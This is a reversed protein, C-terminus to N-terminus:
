SLTSDSSGLWTALWCTLGCNPESPANEPASVISTSQQWVAIM